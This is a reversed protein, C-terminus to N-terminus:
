HQYLVAAKQQCEPCLWTPRGNIEMKGLPEGCRPCCDGQLRHPLLWDAPLAEPNADSRIAEELVERMADHLRRLDAGLLDSTASEPHIRAHFLIEDAYVNGVGALLSQDMLANKIRGRKDSFRQVFADRDLSLADPGVEKARYFAELDQVLRVEGFKRQCDYALAGGGKFRFLVRAHEPEDAEAEFYRFFGTMGFHFVVWGGGDVAVALHKGRRQLDTFRKGTLVRALEAGSTNELLSADKVEVAEVTRELAHREFYRGFVEVDPLEPM